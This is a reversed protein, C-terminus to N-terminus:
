GGGTEPDTADAPSIYDGVNGTSYLMTADAPQGDPQSQGAAVVIGLTTAAVDIRGYALVAPRGTTSWIQGGGTQRM